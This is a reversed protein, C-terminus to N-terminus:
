GLTPDAALAYSPDFYRATDVGSDDPDAPRLGVSTRLLAVSRVAEAMRGLSPVNARKERAVRASAEARDVGEDEAVLDVLADTNAPDAAWRAGAVVARCYGEVATRHATGWAGRVAVTLGPHGPFRQAADALVHCGAAVALADYPVNLMAAAARGDRIADLRMRTAGVPLVAYAERAVGAEALLAYGLVAHGSDPADVALVGGAVGALTRVGPGGVLRHEVGLEAVLVIRLDAGADVRAVVNDAATHAIDHRGALLGDLQPGSATAKTYVVDLGERAFFGAHLAAVLAPARSFAILRITPRDTLRRTPDDRSTM